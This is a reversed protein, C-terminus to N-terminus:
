NNEYDAEEKFMMAGLIYGVIHKLHRPFVAISANHYFSFSDDERGWRIKVDAWTDDDGEYYININDLEVYINNHIEKDWEKLYEKRIKPMAKLIAKELNM